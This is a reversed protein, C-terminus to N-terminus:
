VIEAELLGAEGRYLWWSQIFINYIHVDYIQSLQDFDFLLSILCIVKIYIIIVGAVKGAFTRFLCIWDSFMSSIAIVIVVGRRYILIWCLRDLDILDM